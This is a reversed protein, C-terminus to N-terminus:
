SRGFAQAFSFYPRVTLSKTDQFVKEPGTPIDFMVGFAGLTQTERFRLFTFQPGVSFEAFGSGNPLSPQAPDPTDGPQIWIGGLKNVRISLNDTLALGIQTGFFETSMGGVLPTKSSAKQYIFIPKIETLSRPDQTWFPNSVPTAFEDFCHDSMFLPRN